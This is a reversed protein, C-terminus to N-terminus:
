ELQFQLLSDIALHLMLDTYIGYTLHEATISSDTGSSCGAKLGSAKQYLAM